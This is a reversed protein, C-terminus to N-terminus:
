PIVYAEIIPINQHDNIIVKLKSKIKYYEVNHNPLVNILNYNIFNDLNYKKIINPFKKKLLSQYYQNPNNINTNGNLREILKTVASAQISVMDRVSECILKDNSISYYVKRIGVTKMLELCNYCPRSNCIDGCKNVRVVILDLKQIRKGEPPFFNWGNKEYTLYKGYYQMIANTEAHLSGFCAGKYVTKCTNCCPKTLVKHGKVIVAALQHDIISKTAEQCL